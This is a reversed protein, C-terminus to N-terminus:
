PLKEKKCPYVTIVVFKGSECMYVVKLPYVYKGALAIEVIEKQEGEQPPASDQEIVVVVDGLDISYLKARRLAHRSFIIEM